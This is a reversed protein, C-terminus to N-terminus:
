SRSLTSLPLWMEEGLGKYFGVLAKCQVLESEFLGLQLLEADHHAFTSCTESCLCLLGLSLLANISLKIILLNILGDPFDVISVSGFFCSRVVLDVISVFLRCSRPPSIFSLSPCSEVQSVLNLDSM